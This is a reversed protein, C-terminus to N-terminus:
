IIKDCACFRLVAVCMDTKFRNGHKPIFLAKKTINMVLLKQRSEHRKGPLSQHNYCEALGSEM